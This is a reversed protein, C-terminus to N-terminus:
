KRLTNLEVDVCGISIEADKNEHQDTFEDRQQWAEGMIGARVSSNGGHDRFSWLMNM